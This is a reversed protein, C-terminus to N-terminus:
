GKQSGKGNNLFDMSSTPRRRRSTHYLFMGLLISAVGLFLGGWQLPGAYPREFSPNVHTGIGIVDALGAVYMFVLGTAALRIGIDAQLSRPVGNGQRMRLYLFGAGTLSTIGLLLQTMQVVGFGPTFDLGLLEVGFPVCCLLLGIIFFAWIMLRKLRIAKENGNAFRGNQMAGNHESMGYRGHFHLALMKSADGGPRHRETKM